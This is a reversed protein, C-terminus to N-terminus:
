VKRASKECKELEKRLRKEERRDASWYPRAVVRIWARSAHDVGGLVRWVHGASHQWAPHISYCRHPVLRDTNEWAITDWSYRVFHRCLANPDLHAPLMPVPYLPCSHSLPWWPHRYTCDTCDTTFLLWMEREKVREREQMRQAQLRPSCADRSSIWNHSYSSFFLLVLFSFSQQTHTQTPTHLPLLM